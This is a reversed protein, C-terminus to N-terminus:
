LHSAGGWKDGHYIKSYKQILEPKFQFLRKLFFDQQRGPKMTMGGFIVFDIGYEIGKEIAKNMQATTDTLFPIVQILFMGCAIGKEKLRSITELRKHPSPVGPEMFVSFNKDICSFSFSVIARNQENIQSLLDIDREVLVSKTLIHIPYRCKKLLELTKRTLQYEKEVTQYGDDVGGVVMILGKKLPVRKRAPNLEKELIEIAIIKVAIDQGFEGQVNYTEARGDCYACNHVCGQYLNMGYHSIFWSDIKKRKRLISKAHIETFDV